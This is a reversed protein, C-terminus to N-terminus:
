FRNIAQRHVNGVCGNYQPHRVPTYIHVTNNETLYENLLANTFEAGNDTKIKNIPGFANIYKKICYLVSLYTKDRLSSSFLWNQFNNM